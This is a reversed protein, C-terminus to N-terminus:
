SRWHYARSASKPQARAAMAPGRAAQSVVCLETAWREAEPQEQALPWVSAAFDILARREFEAGRFRLEQELARFFDPFTMGEPAKPRVSLHIYAGGRPTTVVRANLKRGENEHEHDLRNIRNHNM